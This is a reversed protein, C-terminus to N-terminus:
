LQNKNKCRSINIMKLVKSVRKDNKRNGSSWSFTRACRLDDPATPLRGTSPSSMKWYVNLHWIKEKFIPHSKRRSSDLFHTQNGAGKIKMNCSSKEEIAKLWILEYIDRVRIIMLFKAATGLSRHWVCAGCIAPSVLWSILAAMSQRNTLSVALSQQKDTFCRLITIQWYFLSPNRLPAM